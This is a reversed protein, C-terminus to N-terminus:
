KRFITSIRNWIGSPLYTPAQPTTPATSHACSACCYSSMVQCNLIKKKSLLQCIPLQDLCQNAIMIPPLMPSDVKIDIGNKAILESFEQNMCKPCQYISCVKMYDSASADKPHGIIKQFKNDKTLMSIKGPKAFASEEYHMVSLYDYPINYTTADRQSLKDFQAYQSPDINQYLVQIYQDRDARMHEHWLGIAHFLEHIVTDEHICSSDDNSELMIINRGPFRGISTYCGEGKQNQIEAYDRQNTRPIFRICSNNAIKDMANKITKLELADYDGKIAYPILFNGQADQMKSWKLPSNPLIANRMVSKRMPSNKAIKKPRLQVIDSYGNEAGYINIKRGRADVFQSFAFVLLFCLLKASM